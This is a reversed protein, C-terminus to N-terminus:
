GLFLRQYNMFINNEVEIQEMKKIRAIEKVTEAVNCPENREGIMEACEDADFEYFEPAEGSLSEKNLASIPYMGFAPKIIDYKKSLELVRMNSKPTTGNSIIDKVGGKKAREIVENLDAKFRPDDLHCHADVLM